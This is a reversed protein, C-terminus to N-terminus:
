HERQRDTKKRVANCLVIASESHQVSNAFAGFRSVVIARRGDRPNKARGSEEIPATLGEASEVDGWEGTRGLLAAGGVLLSM